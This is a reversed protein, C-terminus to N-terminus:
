SETELITGNIDLHSKQRIYIVPIGKNRLKKRLNSDNTGVVCNKEQSLKLIEEDAPNESKIKKARDALELAIRSAKRESSDGEKKLRELEGIVVEPVVLEYKKDLLRDLESFIDIGHTEPIMLFNADLLVWLDEMYLGSNNSREM